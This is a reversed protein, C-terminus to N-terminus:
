TERLDSVDVGRRAVGDWDRAEGIVFRHTVRLWNGDRGNGPRLSICL